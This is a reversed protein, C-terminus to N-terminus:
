NAHLVSAIYFRKLCTAGSYVRGNEATSISKATFGVSICAETLWHRKSEAETNFQHSNQQMAQLLATMNQTVFTVETM